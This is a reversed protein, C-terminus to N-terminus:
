LNMIGGRAAVQVGAKNARKIFRNTDLDLGLADHADMVDQLNLDAELRPTNALREIDEYTLSPSMDADYPLSMLGMGPEYMGEEKFADILGPTTVSTKFFMPDKGMMRLRDYADQINERELAENANVQFKSYESEPDYWGPYENLESLTSEVEGPFRNVWDPNLDDTTFSGANWVKAGGLNRNTIGADMWMPSGVWSGGGPMTWNNIIESANPNQTVWDPFRQPTIGTGEYAKQVDNSRQLERNIVNTPSNFNHTEYIYNEKADPFITRERQAIDVM